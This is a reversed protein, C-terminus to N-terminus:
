TPPLSPRRSSRILLVLGGILLPIVTAHYAIDPIDGGRATESIGVLFGVLALATAAIGVARARPPTRVMVIAAVALVVGIVAEALGASDPDFSVSRGHVLGSLHLASAVGLSAAELVMLMAVGLIVKSPDPRQKPSFAYVAETM